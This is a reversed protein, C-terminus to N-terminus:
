KVGSNADQKKLINIGKGGETSEGLSNWYMLDNRNMMTLYVSGTLFKSGIQVDATNM